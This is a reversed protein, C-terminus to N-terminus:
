KKNEPKKRKQVHNANNEEFEASFDSFSTDM